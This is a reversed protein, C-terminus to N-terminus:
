RIRFERLANGSFIRHLEQTSLGSSGSNHMSKRSDGSTRPDACSDCLKQIDEGYTEMPYDSGYLVRDAGWIKILAILDELPMYQYTSSMDVVVNPFRSLKDTAEKWLSYGSFHAGIFRTDPYHEYIWAMRDPNSFDYRKDGTHILVPLRRAACLEYLRLYGPHDAAFGQMDPHIKFGRFDHRIADDVDGEPDNTLPHFTGLGIFQQPHKAVEGAVFQHLPRVLKPAIAVSEVVFGDVGAAPGVRLLESVMGCTQAHHGYRDKVAETSAVAIEDPFIHCHADIIYFQNYM